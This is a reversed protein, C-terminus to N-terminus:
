SQARVSLLTLCQSTGVNANADQLHYISFAVVTGVISVGILISTATFVLAPGLTRMRKSLGHYDPVTVVQMASIRMLSIKPQLRSVSSGLLNDQRRTFHCHALFSYLYRRSLMFQLKQPFNTHSKIYPFLSSNLDRRRSRLFHMEFPQALSIYAVALASKRIIM